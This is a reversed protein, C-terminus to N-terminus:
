RSGYHVQVEQQTLARDYFAVEDISGNFYDSDLDGDRGISLAVTWYLPTIAATLSAVEAGDVYLKLGTPGKAYAAHHWSGDNYTGPSAVSHSNADSDYVGGVVKGAGDVILSHGYYRTRYITQLTGSATTKFWAEITFNPTQLTSSTGLSVFDNVGDFTVSTGGSGTLPSEKGLLPGNTYTGTNAGKSDAASTGSTENLRWYSVLGPRALVTAAYDTFTVVFRTHSVNAPDPNPTSGTLSSFVAAGGSIVVDSQGTLRVGASDSLAISAKHGNCAAPLGSIEAALVANNARVTWSVNANALTGCPAIGHFGGGVDRNSPTLSNAYALTPPCVLAFAMAALFALKRPATLPSM